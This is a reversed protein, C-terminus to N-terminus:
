PLRGDSYLRMRRGAAHVCNHGSHCVARRNALRWGDVDDAYIGRLIGALWGCADYCYDTFATM